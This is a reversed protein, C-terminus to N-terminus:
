NTTHTIINYLSLTHYWVTRVVAIVFFIELILDCSALDLAGPGCGADIALLNQGPIFGEPVEEHGGPFLCCSFMFFFLM